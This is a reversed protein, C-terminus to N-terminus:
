PRHLLDALEAREAATLHRRAAQNFGRPSATVLVRAGPIGAMRAAAAPSPITGDGVGELLRPHEVRLRQLLPLPPGGSPSGARVTPRRPAEPEPDPEPDPEPGVDTMTDPETGDRRHRALDYATDLSLPGTIVREALDPAHDVVVAAYAIRSRSVGAGAALAEQRNNAAFLRAGKVAIM